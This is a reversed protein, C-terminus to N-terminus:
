NGCEECGLYISNGTGADLRSGGDAREEKWSFYFRYMAGTRFRRQTGLLLKTKQGDRLVLTVMCVGVAPIDHVKEIKGELTGYGHKKVTYILAACRGLVLVALVVSWLALGASHTHCGTFVGISLFLIAILAM